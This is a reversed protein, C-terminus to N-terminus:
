FPLIVKKKTPEIKPAPTSAEANPTRTKEFFVIRRPVKQTSNRRNPTFEPDRKSGIETFKPARPPGLPTHPGWLQIGDFTTVGKPLSLPGWFYPGSRVRLGGSFHWSLYRRTNALSERVKSFSTKALMTAVIEALRSLCLFRINEVVSVECCRGPSFM